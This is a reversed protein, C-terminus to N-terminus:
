GNLVEMLAETSVNTKCASEILELKYEFQHIVECGSWTKQDLRIEYIHDESYVDEFPLVSVSIIVGAKGAYYNGKKIRVYDGTSFKPPDTNQHFKKPM